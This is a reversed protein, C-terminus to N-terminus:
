GIAKWTNNGVIGDAVLKKSRQFDVVAKHTNPGFIGDATIKLKSQLYVVHEGNSGRMITPRGAGPKLTPVVPAKAKAPAKAPEGTKAPAATKPASAAKVFKEFDINGTAMLHTGGKRFSLHLHAGYGREKGLGSAGSLGLVQGKKVSQGAKVDIRSLHLYDAKHGSPFDLLVMRGGAGTITNIVKAVKGDAIALVPVGIPTGYDTGPNVSPKPRNRHGDFSDTIKAKVPRIWTSM